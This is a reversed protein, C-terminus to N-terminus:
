VTVMYGGQCYGKKILNEKKLCIDIKGSDVTVECYVITKICATVFDVYEVYAKNDCITKCCREKPRFSCEFENFFAVAEMKRIQVSKVAASKLQERTKHLISQRNTPLSFSSPQPKNFNFFTTKLPNTAFIDSSFCADLKDDSKKEYSATNVYGLEAITLVACLPDSPSKFSYCFTSFNDQAVTTCEVSSIVTYVLPIYPAKVQFLPNVYVNDDPKPFDSPNVPPLLQVYLTKKGNPGLREFLDFKATDSDESNPNKVIKIIYKQHVINETKSALLKTTDILIAFPCKQISNYTKDNLAPSDNYSKALTSRICMESLKTSIIVKM